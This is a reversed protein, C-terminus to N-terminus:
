RERKPYLFVAVVSFGSGRQEVTRVVCPWVGEGVCASRVSQAAVRAAVAFTIFSHSALGRQQVHRLFPGLSSAGLGCGGAVGRVVVVRAKTSLPSLLAGGARSRVPHAATLEPRYSPHVARETATAPRSTSARGSPQRMAGKPRGALTDGGGGGLSDANVLPSDASGPRPLGLRPARLRSIRRAPPAAGVAPSPRSLRSGGARDGRLLVLVQRPELGQRLVLARLGAALSLLRRPGCGGVRRLAAARGRAPDSQRGRFRHVAYAARSRTRASAARAGM